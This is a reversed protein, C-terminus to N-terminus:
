CAWRRGVWRTAGWASTPSTSTPAPCSTRSAPWCARNTWTISSCCRVARRSTWRCGCCAGPPRPTANCGCVCVHVCAHLCARVKFEDVQVMRADTGDFVSASVSRTETDTEFAVSILNAYNVSKPSVKEVVELGLEAALFATNVYNVAGPGQTVSLLGKLVATKLASAVAPDSVLPGQLSIQVKRLKGSMLQAQLAGVREAISTYAALDPRSLFSLNSANVVGVFAKNDLADAMQVAIDRAVNLQAETTSAGLHPTAIVAPHALLEALGPPPPEASFVDLAAGGVKGSKLGELLDSENVIGGRAVNVIRVGAVLVGFTCTVGGGWRSPPVCGNQM